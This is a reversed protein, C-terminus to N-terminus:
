GSVVNVENDDLAARVGDRPRVGVLDIGSQEAEEAV